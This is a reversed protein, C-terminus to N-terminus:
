AAEKDKTKKLGSLEKTFIEPTMQGPEGIGYRKLVAEMTVGTREMEKELTAM